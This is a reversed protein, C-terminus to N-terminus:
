KYLIVNALNAGIVNTLDAGTLNAGSLDAGTLNARSLDAGSLDSERLDANCLYVSHLNTRKLNAKTLNTAGLNAASLDAGELDARTLKVQRLCAGSLDVMTLKTEILNAFELNVGRLEVRRLDKGSLDVARLNAKRLNVGRLDAEKLVSYELDARYLNAGRLDAGSLEARVLKINKCIARNLNANNLNSGTLDSKDLNACILEIGGLDKCSLDINKLDAGCLNTDRLDTGKLNVEALNAKRLDAGRLDANSFNAGSLNANSLIAKRLDSGTLNAKRLNASELNAGYLYAKSLIAYRLDANMIKAERLNASELNAYLLNAQELQICGLNAGALNFHKFDARKFNYYSLDFYSLDLCFYQTAHCIHLKLSNYLQKQKSQIFIYKTNNHIFIYRTNSLTKHLSNLITIINTFCLAERYICENYKKEVGLYKYSIGREIMMGITTEFWEYSFEEKNLCLKKVKYLFFDTITPNIKGKIIIKSINTAFDSQSKDNMEIISNKVSEYLACSVFYEYISRHIFFIDEGEFGDCHRIIKFYNSILVDQGLEYSNIGNGKAITKVITMYRKKPISAEEVNNELIWLATQCTIAHIIEKVKGKGIRHLTAWKKSNFCRDYIGGEIAFIKDYIDVMSTINEIKVNLALVAYIILPIGFVDSLETLKKLKEDENNNNRINGLAKCYSGYFDEIQRPSLPQLTIYPCVIESVRDIYHERCTIFLCFNEIANNIFWEDYLKNLITLRNEGTNIEDLGDLILIKGYLKNKNLSLSSLIKGPYNYQTDNNNWDINKLDTFRYVLIDEENNAIKAMFWTILTSKGIGPQGLILLMKDKSEKENSVYSKMRKELSELRRGQGNLKYHPLMYLQHLKINAGAREDEEDFDHLFMNKNWIAKYEKARNKLSVINKCEQNNVSVRSTKINDKINDMEKFLGDVKQDIMCALNRTDIICTNIFSEDEKALQVAKESIFLLLKKIDNEYETDKNHKNKYEEFLYHGLEKSSVNHQMVLDDSIRVDDLLDLCEQKIYESQDTNIDLNRFTKESLVDRFERKWKKIYEITKENGYEIPISLIEKLINNETIDLIGVKLVAFTLEILNM